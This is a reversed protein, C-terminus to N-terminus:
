RQLTRAGTEMAQTELARTETREDPRDRFVLFVM